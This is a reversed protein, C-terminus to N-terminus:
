LRKEEDTMPRFHHVDTVVDGVWEYTTKQYVEYEKDQPISVREFCAFEKPLNNVDIHLFNEKFNNELIPHEFPKGDCIRIYLKM